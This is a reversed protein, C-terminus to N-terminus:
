PSDVKQLYSEVIIAGLEALLRKGEEASASAPNGFYALSGGAEDFTSAGSRLAAPLDISVPELDALLDTRVSDPSAALVISTEYSGAHRSGGSFEAGLREAWSRQRYDVAHIVRGVDASVTACADLIADFHAPELHANVVVVDSPGMASLGRLVWELYLRFPEPAVPTTGPFSAGVFSVGYWIPPAIWARRGIAKFRHAASEAAAQAIIVDTDLGLHPGHAEVAGIPLLVISRSDLSESIETWALSALLRGSTKPDSGM